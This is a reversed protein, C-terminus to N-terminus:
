DLRREGTPLTVYNQGYQEDSDFLDYDKHPPTPNFIHKIVQWAYDLVFILGIIFIIFAIGM